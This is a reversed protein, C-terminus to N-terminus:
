AGATQACGSPINGINSEVGLVAMLLPRNHSFPRDSPLQAPLDGPHIAGQDSLRSCRGARLADVDDICDGGALESAVLTLLKDGRTRGARPMAWTSTGTLWNPCAWTAPSPPRCSCVPM